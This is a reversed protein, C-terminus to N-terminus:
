EEELLCLGVTAPKYNGILHNNRITRDWVHLKIVYGCPTTSTTTTLTFPEDTVGPPILLPYAAYTPSIVPPSAVTPEIALSYKWIHLDTATFKGTITDGVEVKACAGVDLSVEAEPTTNDVMVKVWNSPIHDAPVGLFPIPPAGPSYLLVRIYYLGDSLANRTNWQALVDGEVFHQVVPTLDEEYTYYGGIAAQDKHTMSWIVGDFTSIWIRFGNTIDHWTPYGFKRYQAKYRLKTAGSSYDPPNSIHGAIVVREGFPSEIANYGGYVSPGNAYGSGIASSIVSHPNGSISEIAMGGVVSIFPIQKTGVPRSPKLQIKAEVRNGWVPNYHPDNPPPPTQWSLIARVKLLKPNVCWDKYMSFDVPLYVAYQLGGPPINQIDHVNVSATGVYRWLCMQEIQDWVYIWFAVYEYSGQTCLNGNYGYPLKVTLTGVLQDQYYNLGVCNLKEYKTNPKGAFFIDVYKMEQILKPNLKLKAALAPNKIIQNVKQNIAPFNFRLEPVDKGEYIKKLELPTHKIKKSIPTELDLMDAKIKLKELNVSKIIDSLFFIAPKIQIWRDVRNGWVPNYIPNGPPPPVAWSLIARVKVLKPFICWRKRSEIKLPLAYSLPKTMNLCPKPDNPIDHVNVSTIGVDEDADVFDGDNNWDIFFRVYEFSGNQCLNGGYGYPLKIDVIAELLDQNPYFGICKLVEYKTNFKMSKVQKWKVGPLNGFYNPNQIILKKFEVREKELKVIARKQKQALIQSTLGISLLIILLVTFSKKIM